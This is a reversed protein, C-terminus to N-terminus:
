SKELLWTHIHSNSWLSPQPGFFQHRWVTTSSFVRSLGKSEWTFGLPFWGQINMPLVSASASARIVKAVQHLSGVWKFLGQHHSLNFAFPSSPPLPHSPQIADSIWHVQAQSFKLLYHPVPLCFASVFILTVKAVQHSSSVWHFLGQHQAFDLTVWLIDFVEM